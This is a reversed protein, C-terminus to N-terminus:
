MGTAIRLSGYCEMDLGVSQALQRCSETAM